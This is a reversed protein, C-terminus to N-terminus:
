VSFPWRGLLAAWEPSGAAPHNRLGYTEQVNALARSTAQDFRGTIELTDDTWDYAVLIAQLIKVVPGADGFEVMFNRLNPLLGIWTEPTVTGTITLGWRRQLEKVLAVDWDTMIGDQHPTGFFLQFFQVDDGKDGEKLERIGPRDSSWSGGPRDPDMEPKVLDLVSQTEAEVAAAHSEDRDATFVLWDDQLTFGYQKALDPNALAPPLALAIGYHQPQPETGEPLPTWAELKGPLPRAAAAAQLFSATINLIATNVLASTGAATVLRIHQKRFSKTAPNGYAALPATNEM